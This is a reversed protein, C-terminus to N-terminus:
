TREGFIKTGVRIITSGEDLAVKYDGSMGMSLQVRNEFEARLSEALKFMKRYHIRSNEAIPSYETITMFGEISINKLNRIKKLLSLTDDAYIGSKKPDESINVQLLARQVINNKQSFIDIEEAVKFSDLTHILSSTGVIYKIKNKQIPGLYHWNLKAGSRTLEKNKDRLEQAYNEGFDKQGLNNLELIQAFPKKKSVALLLADKKNLISYNTFEEKFEQYKQSVDINMIKFLINYLRM